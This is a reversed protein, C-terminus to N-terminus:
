LSRTMLLNDYYQEGVKLARQELGYQIFGASRYLRVAPINIATVSLCLAELSTAAEEIVRAVLASALGTGRAEPQVFMGWLIGKHMSKASTSFALGAAGLLTTADRWGGFLVNREIREAFWALPKSAEDDWSAGFAEPHHYLSDLRLTRYSAADSPAIRRLIFPPTTQPGKTM